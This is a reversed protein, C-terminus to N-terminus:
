PTDGSRMVTWAITPADDGLGDFPISPPLTPLPVTRQQDQDHLLDTVGDVYGRAYATILLNMLNSTVVRTLGLRTLHARWETALDRPPATQM